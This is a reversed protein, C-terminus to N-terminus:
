VHPPLKVHTPPRGPERSWQSCSAATQASHPTSQTFISQDTDEANGKRRRLQQPRRDKRADGQRGNDFCAREGGEGRAM